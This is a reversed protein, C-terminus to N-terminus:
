RVTRRFEYPGATAGWVQRGEDDYGRDWTDMGEPMVLAQSVAYSAGRLESPCTRESTTGIFRGNEIRVLMLECGERPELDRASIADFRRPERWAGAWSLADGPLMFVASEIFGGEVARVRYVRQRYPRDLADATGQEVYLWSGDRRSSWIPHMELRIDMFNEPDRQAQETSSFSGTLWAVLTEFDDREDATLGAHRSGACGGACGGAYGGIWGAVGLFFLGVMRRRLM